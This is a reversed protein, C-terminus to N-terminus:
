NQIEETIMEGEEVALFEGGYFILAVIKHGSSIYGIYRINLPPIIRTEDRKVQGSSSQFEGQFEESASASEPKRRRFPAFINRKPPSFKEKMGSLLEKRVFSKEEAIGSKMSSLEKKERQIENDAMCFVLCLSIALFLRGIRKFSM